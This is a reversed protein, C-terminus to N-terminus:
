RLNLHLPIPTGLKGERVREVDAMTMGREVEGKFYLSNFLLDFRSGVAGALLPTVRAREGLTQSYHHVLLQVAIPLFVVLAVCLVMVISRIRHFAMYRWALLLVYKM